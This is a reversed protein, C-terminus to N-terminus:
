PSHIITNQVDINGEALIRHFKEPALQIQMPHGESNKWLHNRDLWDMTVNNGKGFYGYYVLEIVAMNKNGIYDQYIKDVSFVSKNGIRQM